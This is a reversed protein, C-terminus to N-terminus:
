RQGKEEEREINAVYEETTSAVPDGGEAIIPRKVEEAVIMM